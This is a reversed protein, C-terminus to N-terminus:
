QPPDSQDPDTDDRTPSNFKMPFTEKMFNGVTQKVFYDVFQDIAYRDDTTKSDPM